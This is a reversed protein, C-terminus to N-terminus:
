SNDPGSPRESKAREIGDIVEVIKDAMAQLAKKGKEATAKKPNGWVGGPWRGVKDRAVFPRPLDPYEEKARGKVLHPAFSLVISTEIEGAHSDNATEAITSLENWLLDYPTFVALRAGRLRGILDEATERLASMHIGGGHGSILLINRLGKAYAETILDHCLRRLTEPSIGITGPHDRTTTCVGYSVIPALFFRRKKGALRLAEMIIMSDTSLPLHSGHEEVTGFPFVVTKTMKVTQRFQRMTIQDLIYM